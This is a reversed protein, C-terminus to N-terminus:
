LSFTLGLDANIEVEPLRDIAADSITSPQNLVSQFREAWRKLIQTKETLLTRGDASLLSAAGKVPPGYVARTAAFFNKWENRDAFGQIEEAKRTVWVDRMGAATATCTRHSQNFATKNAATPRDVYAKHLQNKEVLLTSLQTTTM